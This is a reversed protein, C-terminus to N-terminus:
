RNWLPDVIIKQRRAERWRGIWKRPESRLLQLKQRSLENVLGVNNATIKGGGKKKGNEFARANARQEVVRLAHIYKEIPTPRDTDDFYRTLPPPSLAVFIRARVVRARCRCQFRPACLIGDLPTPSPIDTNKGEDM